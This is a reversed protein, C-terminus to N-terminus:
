SVKVARTTESNAQKLAEGAKGHPLIKFFKYIEALEDFEFFIKCALEFGFFVRTAHWSV